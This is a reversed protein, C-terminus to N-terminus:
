IFSEIFLDCILLLANSHTKRLCCSVTSYGPTQSDLSNDSLTYLVESEIINTVGASGYLM